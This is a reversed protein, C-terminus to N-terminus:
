NDAASHFCTFGVIWCLALPIEFFVVKAIGVAIMMADTPNMKAGDIVDVIGGIFCIWVGFYIGLALFGLGTIICLFNIIDNLISSKTNSM